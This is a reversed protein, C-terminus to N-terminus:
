LFAMDYFVVFKLVAKRREENNKIWEIEFNYESVPIFTNLIDFPM